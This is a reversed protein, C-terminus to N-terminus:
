CGRGRARKISQRWSPQGDHDANRVTLSDVARPVGGFYRSLAAVSDMEAREDPPANRPLQPNMVEDMWEDLGGRLFFVNRVGRSRLLVWAQAAHAGGVPLVDQVQVRFKLIRGM